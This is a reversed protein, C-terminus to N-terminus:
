RGLMSTTGELRCLRACGESPSRGLRRLVSRYTGRTASRLPRSLEAHLRDVIDLVSINIEHSRAQGLRTVLHDIVALRTTSAAEAALAPRALDAYDRVFAAYSEILLPDSSRWLRTENVVDALAPM